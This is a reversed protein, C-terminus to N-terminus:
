EGEKPQALAERVDKRSALCLIGQEFVDTETWRVEATTMAAAIAAALDKVPQTVKINVRAPRMVKPM